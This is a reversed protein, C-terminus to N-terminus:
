ESARKKACYPLAPRSTVPSERTCRVPDCPLSAPSRTAAASGGYTGNTMCATLPALPTFDSQSPCPVNDSTTTPSGIEPNELGRGDASVVLSGHRSQGVGPGDLDM